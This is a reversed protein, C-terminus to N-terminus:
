NKINVKEVLWKEVHPQASEVDNGHVLFGRKTTFKTAYKNFDTFCQQVGGGGHTCFPVITKGEFNNSELYTNIIMPMTGWWNPYGIFILDYDAVNPMVGKIAPRAHDNKEKKAQDVCTQYNTSYPVEPIIEFIDAQTFDQIQHAITRTNGSWSFYVVLTKQANMNNFMSILMILTIFLHKKKM